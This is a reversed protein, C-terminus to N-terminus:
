PGSSGVAVRPMAARRHLRERARERKRAHQEAEALAEGFGGMARDVGFETDGLVGDEGDALDGGEVFGVAVGAAGGQGDGHPGHDAGM